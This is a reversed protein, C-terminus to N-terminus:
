GRSPVICTGRWRYLKTALQQYYIVHKCKGAHSSDQFHAMVSMGLLPQRFKVWFSFGTIEIVFGLVIRSEM